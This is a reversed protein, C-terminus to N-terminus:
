APMLRSNKRCEPFPYGACRQRWMEWIGSNMLISILFIASRWDVSSRRSPNQVIPRMDKPLVQLAITFIWWLTIPKVNVAGIFDKGAMAALLGFYDNEDIRLSRCIIKRNSGEPAYQRICPISDGIRFSGETEADHSINCPWGFGLLEWRLPVYIWERYATWGTCRGKPWEYICGITEDSIEFQRVYGSSSKWGWCM